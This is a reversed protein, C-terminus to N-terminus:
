FGKCKKKIKIESDHGETGNSKLSMPLNLLTRFSKGYMHLFSTCGRQLAACCLMKKNCNLIMGALCARM